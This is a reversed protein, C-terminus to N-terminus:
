VSKSYRNSKKLRRKFAYVAGMAGCTLIGLASSPEPVAKTDLVEISPVRIDENDVNARGNTRTLVYITGSSDVTVGVPDTYDSISSNLQFNSDFIDVQQNNFDIVSINGFLDVALDTPKDFFGNLSILPKLTSDFIDVENNGTDAVYINGNSPNVAVANPNNFLGDGKISNIFGLDSNFIDIKNNGTDAVYINGNSLNVAVDSPNNFDGKLSKDTVGIDVYISFFENDFQKVTNFINVENNGTDAVYVKGNLGVALGNPSSEEAFLNPAGDGGAYRSVLFREEYNFAVGVIGSENEKDETIYFTNGDTTAIGIPNETLDGVRSNSNSPPITLSLKKQPRRQADASEIFAGLAIASTLGTAIVLKSIKM